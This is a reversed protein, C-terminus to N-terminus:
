VHRSAFLNNFDVIGEQGTKVLAERDMKAERSGIYELVMPLNMGTIISVKDCYCPDSLLRASCNCPTGFLLDCFVMVGEGTDVQNIAEKLTDLFETMDDGAQLCLSRIQEIEGSFINLSDLLGDALQGHSALIIGKM